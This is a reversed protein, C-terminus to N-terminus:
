SATKIKGNLGNPFFGGSSNGGLYVIKLVQSTTRAFTIGNGDTPVINAQGNLVVGQDDNNTGDVKARLASIQGAITQPGTGLNYIVARVESAHYAETGLIGAAASLITKDSILPAAGHYATVGVDEFIFAGLLFNTENAFPDFTQGIGAAQAAANFSNQLDLAPRDVANGGLASRLFRVHALEDSAIEQAYQQIVPTAFPVQPNSKVTVTGPNAGSDVNTLSSGTTALLYYEAELYELNLAFNLIDADTVSSQANSSSNSGGCAALGIGSAAGLTVLSIKQLMARRSLRRQEIRERLQQIKTM